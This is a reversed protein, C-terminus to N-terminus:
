PNHTTFPLTLVVCTGGMPLPSIHMGARPGYLTHLRQRVHSLGWSTGAQAGDAQLPRAADALALESIGSGNDRVTLLLQAGEARALVEIRGGSVQPELGHHIANELLPQLIFRPVTATELKPPLDLEFTMRPGMRIAMLSLYDGLRSFEDGLPHLAQHVPLRTAQLTTRLYDNLHDLMAHARATDQGILARLHALTNFLMHPELQSQLLMLQAQTVENALSEAKGRQSFYAVFAVSIALSIFMLGLFRNQNHELLDWTSNGSYADGLLSGLVFGLPIGVLLMLTAPLAPPWYYPAPSCLLRKFAFRPVDTLLWIFTSIAYSYVLSVDFASPHGSARSSIWTSLGILFAVAWVILLRQLLPRRHHAPLWALLTNTNM